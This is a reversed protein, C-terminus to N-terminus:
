ELAFLTLTSVDKVFIRNGSVTPQTWTPSNAVEYRELVDFGTRSHGIVVLEGDDQLSFITNGARVIGANEAQRPGSKWLVEGSELDLAFYQGSNLHSLGFLVGDIVVGNTM